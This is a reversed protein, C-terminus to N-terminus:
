GRVRMRSVRDEIVLEAIVGVTAGLWPHGIAVGIVWFSVLSLMRLSPSGRVLGNVNAGLLMGSFIGVWPHLFGYGVVGGVVTVVVFLFGGLFGLSSGSTKSVTYGQAPTPWSTPAPPSPPNFRPRFGGIPVAKERLLRVNTSDYKAGCDLCEADRRMGASASGMGAGVVAGFLTGVVPLISGVTAGFAAGSVAGGPHLKGDVIWEVTGGCADCEFYYKRDRAM